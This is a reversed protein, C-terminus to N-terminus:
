VMSVESEEGKDIIEDEKRFTVVLIATIVVGIAFGILWKIPSMMFPLGWIGIACPVPSKAGFLLVLAGGVGSGIMISPIVKLPTSVAYPIAGESIGLSGMIAAPLANAKEAKSFKNPQIVTALALGIPATMIGVWCAAMPEYIGEALTAYCFALVIKNVPGGMDFAMLAGIIFGLVALNGGQLSKLWTEIGGTLPKLPISILYVFLATLGVGLVPIIMIPKVAAAVDPIPIKKLQNVLWGAFFGAFIGGLYGIGLENAAIGGVLGVAIGPKDAISYAIFGSIMPVMLGLAWVGVDVFASAVTGEEGMIVGISLLIGGAVVVPIMYSVGTMLHRKVRQM